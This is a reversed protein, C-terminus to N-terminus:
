AAGARRAGAPVAAERLGPVPSPKRAVAHVLHQSLRRAMYRAGAVFRMSPGFTDTSALGAFYLGPVSSEFDASLVPAGDAVAIRACVEPALYDLRRVDVRYGTAAVVHDAVAECTAGDRGALDLHVRSGRVTAGRVAHGLLTEVRAAFRERMCWTGAPGLTTQVLRRRTAAPLRRFLMPAREYFCLRIGLGLASTPWRLRELLPRRGRPPVDMWLISPTRAVLRVRAGAEALLTALDLASAGAGVVIVDRGALRGVDAHESSHSVHEPPLAALAAPVSAFHKPGTAVVVREADATTGDDLRLMFGDTARDVAVVRTREVQPVLARQFALGYAVFTELTVPVGSDAYEIGREACFRALTFRGAPDHLSSAFGQSKLSMGAPMHASWTEMPHGFIRFGVGGARLHAALSLGYPGAGVIAVPVRAGLPM